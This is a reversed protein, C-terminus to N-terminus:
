QKMRRQIKLYFLFWYTLYLLVLSGIFWYVLLGIFLLSALRGSLHFVFRALVFILLSTFIAQLPFGALLLAQSFDEERRIARLTKYPHFILGL